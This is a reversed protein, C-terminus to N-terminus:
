QRAEWESRRPCGAKVWTKLEDFRWLTSRKIRIPRPILGLADWSRWTRLCKGCMAAATKANVLLTSFEQDQVEPLRMEEADMFVSRRCDMITMLSERRAAM